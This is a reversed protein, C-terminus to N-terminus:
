RGGGRGLYLFHKGDSIVEVGEARFMNAMYKIAPIWFDKRDKSKEIINMFYQKDVTTKTQFTVMVATAYWKKTGKLDVAEMFDNTKWNSIYLTMEHKIKAM